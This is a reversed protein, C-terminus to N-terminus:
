EKFHKRLAQVNRAYKITDDYLGNDQISGMGQYYAHLAKTSNSNNAKLLYRLYRASMRVNNETNRPNLDVGILEKEIFGATDPMIQGVGIAGTSSVKSQDFGSEQWLTAELLDQPIDNAKAWKATHKRVALRKPNARLRAPLSKPGHLEVKPLSLSQGIRLPSTFKLKNAKALASVTTNQRGAISSLSDGSRVVYSKGPRGELARGSDPTRQAAAAVLEARDQKAAQAKTAKVAKAALKVLEPNVKAPVKKARSSSSKKSSKASAVAKAKQAISAASAPDQPLVLSSAVSGALGIAVSLALGKVCRFAFVSRPSRTPTPQLSAEINPQFVRRLGTVFSTNV